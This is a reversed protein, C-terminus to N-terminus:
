TGGRANDEQLYEPDDVRTVRLGDPTGIQVFRRGLSKRAYDVAVRPAEDHPVRAMNWPIILSEGIELRALRSIIPGQGKKRGRKPREDQEM